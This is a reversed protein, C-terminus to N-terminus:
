PWKSVGHEDERTERTQEQRRKERKGDSNIENGRGREPVDKKM